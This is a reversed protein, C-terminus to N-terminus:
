LWTPRGGSVKSVPCCVLELVTEPCPAQGQPHGKWVHSRELTSLACSSPDSPYLDSMHGYAWSPLFKPPGWTLWKARSLHSSPGLRGPPKGSRWSWSNSVKGAERCGGWVPFVRLWHKQFLPTDIFLTELAADARGKWYSVHGISSVMGAGCPVRSNSGRQVLEQQELKAGPEIEWLKLKDMELTPTPSGLHSLLLSDVQLAPFTPEIGADPLNGPPLCPLESWHEQRFLGM